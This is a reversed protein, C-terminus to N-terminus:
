PGHQKTAVNKSKGTVTVAWPSQFRARFVIQSSALARLTRNESKTIVPLTQEKHRPPNQPGGQFTGLGRFKPRVNSSAVTVECLGAVRHETSGMSGELRASRRNTVASHSESSSHRSIIGWPSSTTVTEYGEEDLSSWHVSLRPMWSLGQTGCSYKGRTCRVVAGCDRPEVFSDLYVNCM